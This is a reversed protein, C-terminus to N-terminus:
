QKKCIHSSSTWGGQKWTMRRSQSQNSVYVNPMAPDQAWVVKKPNDFPNKSESGGATALEIKLTPLDGTKQLEDFKISAGRYRKRLKGMAGPTVVMDLIDHAKEHTVTLENMDMAVRVLQRVQLDVGEWSRGTQDCTGDPRLPRAYYLPNEDAYNEPLEGLRYVKKVQDKIDIDNRGSLGVKIERLLQLTTAVDVNRGDKYVIFPEGRSIQSLRVGVPNTFDEPDFAQVLEDLTMRDAKKASVPRAQTTDAQVEKRFVSAIAKALIRPKMKTGDPKSINPLCDQIDEHSLQALREESTGGSAKICSIFQEPDIYGTAKDGGIAENHEKIVALAADIRDAYSM